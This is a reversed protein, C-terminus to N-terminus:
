ILQDGWIEMVDTDLYDAIKMAVVLSPIEADDEYKRYLYLPVGCAEVVQGQSLKKKSRTQRLRNGITRQRHGLFPNTEAFTKMCDKCRYRRRKYVYIGASDPIGRLRQAHYSDVDVYHSGCHPCVVSEQRPLHFQTRKNTKVEICDEPLSAVYELFDKVRMLGKERRESLFIFAVIISLTDEYCKDIQLAVDVKSHRRLM